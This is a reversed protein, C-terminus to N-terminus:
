EWVVASWVAIFGVVRRTAGRMREMEARASGIDGADCPFEMGTRMEEEESEFFAVSTGCDGAWAMLASWLRTDLLGSFRASM